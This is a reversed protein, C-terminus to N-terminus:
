LKKAVHKPREKAVMMLGINYLTHRGHAYLIPDWVTYLYNNFNLEGRFNNVVQIFSVIYHTTAIGILYAILLLRLGFTMSGMWM